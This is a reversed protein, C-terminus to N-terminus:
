GPLMHMYIEEDININVFANLVDHQVLGLDFRAAITMFTCFLQAALMAAYTEQGTNKAQQDGWITLWTKVGSDILDAM